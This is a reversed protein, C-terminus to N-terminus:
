KVFLEQCNIGINQYLKNNRIITSLRLLFKSFKERLSLFPINNSLNELFKSYSKIQVIQKLKTKRFLIRSVSM